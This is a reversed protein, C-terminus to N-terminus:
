SPLDAHAEWRRPQQTATYTRPTVTASWARPTITATATIDRQKGQYAITLTGAATLELVDHHDTGAITFALSATTTLNLTSVTAQTSDFQLAGTATLDLSVAHSVRSTAAFAGTSTLAVAAARTATTAMDLSGSSIQANTAQQQVTAAQNLSGAGTLTQTGTLAATSAQTLTGAGTLAHSATAANTATHAVTASSSLPLASSGAVTSSSAITGAATLPLNAQYNTATTPARLENTAGDNLQLYDLAVTTGAAANSNLIGVDTAAFPNTGLNYTTSTARGLETGDATYLVATITGTTTTASKARITLEYPVGPTLGTAITLTNGLAADVVSLSNDVGWNIRGAVGGSHRLSLIGTLPAPTPKHTFVAGLSLTNNAAATAFRAICLQNAVTTFRAGLQGSRVIDKAFVATGGNTTVQTAGSNGGQANGTLTAGEPGTEFDLIKLTM